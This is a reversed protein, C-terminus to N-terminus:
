LTKNTSILEVQKEKMEDFLDSMLQVSEALSAQEGLGLDGLKKQIKTTLELVLEDLKGKLLGELLDIRKALEVNSPMM